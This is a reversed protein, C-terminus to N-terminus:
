TAGVLEAAVLGTSSCRRGAGIVSGGVFLGLVWLVTWYGGPLLLHKTAIIPLRYRQQIGRLVAAVAAHVRYLGLPAGQHM